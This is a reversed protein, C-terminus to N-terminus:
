CPPVSARLGCPRVRTCGPLGWGIWGERSPPKPQWSGGHGYGDAKVVALLRTAPSLLVRLGRVNRAIAGVDVEAWLPLDELDVPDGDPGIADTM